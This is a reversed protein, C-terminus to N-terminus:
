NPRRLPHAETNLVWEDLDVVGREEFCLYFYKLTEALWFSEMSDMKTPKQVTVDYIASAAIHTRTAQEIKTFMRWAIDQWKKDGSIRWMIFVSEIAEPRLIYRKDAYATFGPKLNHDRIFGDRLMPDDPANRMAAHWAETSWTCNDSCPVLDFIEPAIGTNQADYAWVCGNTLQEAVEIDEPRNFIKAAIGVMGGTFCGLHQGVPNLQVSEGGYARVDGSFLLPFNSPNLARFFLHKKAVDIFINYMKKPQDLLGGLLLYQKPLYEYLSDSMGGLTFATDASMDPTQADIM